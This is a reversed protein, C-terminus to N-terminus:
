KKTTADACAKKKKDWYKLTGCHGPGTKAKKAKAKVLEVANSVAPAPTKSVAQAAGATMIGAVALAAVSALGAKMFRM